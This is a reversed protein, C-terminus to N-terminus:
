VKANLRGWSDRPYTDKSCYAMFGAQKIVPTLVTTKLHVAHVVGFPIVSFHFLLHFHECNCGTLSFSSGGRGRGREERRKERRKRKRREEKGGTRERDGEKERERERM